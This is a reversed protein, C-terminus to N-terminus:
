VCNHSLVVHLAAFFLSFCHNDVFEDAISFYVVVNNAGIKHSEAQAMTNLISSFIRIPISYKIQKYLGWADDMTLKVDSTGTPIPGNIFRACADQINAYSGVITTPLLPQHNCDRFFGKKLDM